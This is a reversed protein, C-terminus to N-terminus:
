REIGRGRRRQLRIVDVGIILGLSELSPAATWRGRSGVGPFAPSPLSNSWSRITGVIVPRFCRLGQVPNGRIRTLLVIQGSDLGFVAVEVEGSESDPREVVGGIHLVDSLSIDLQAVV